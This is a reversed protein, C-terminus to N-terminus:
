SVAKSFYVQGLVVWIGSRNKWVYDEIARLQTIEVRRVEEEDPLKPAGPTPKAAMPPSAPSNSSPNRCGIASSEAMLVVLVILRKLYM